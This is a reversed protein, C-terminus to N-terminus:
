KVFVGHGMRAIKEIALTPLLFVRALRGRADAGGCTTV